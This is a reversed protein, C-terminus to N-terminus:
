LDKLLQCLMVLSGWLRFFVLPRIDSATLDIAVNAIEVIYVYPVANLNKDRLISTSARCALCSVRKYNVRPM